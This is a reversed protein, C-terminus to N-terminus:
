KMKTFEVSYGLYEFLKKVHPALLDFITKKDTSNLSDYYGKLNNYLKDRQIGTVESIKHFKFLSWFELGESKKAQRGKTTVTM